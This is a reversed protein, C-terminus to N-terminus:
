FTFGLDFISLQKWEEPPKMNKDVYEKYKKSYAHADRFIIGAKGYLKKDFKRAADMEGEINRGFPCGCCGTRSLGYSYYCESHRIGFHDEYAKRDAMSWLFIPRYEDCGDKKKTFCGPYATSRQGGEDKRVGCINLDAKTDKIAEAIMIRKSKCCSASIRFDPPNEVMFEKLLKNRKINFKSSEGWSDCWWRLAATCGTYWENALYVWPRKNKGTKKRYEELERRKDDTPKKCYKELLVPLPEDEWQFDHKQLRHIYDAARKSVFPQGDAMIADPVSIGARKKQIRIGYKAELEDVHTRTADYELGTDIWLYRCREHIDINYLVDMVVDSDAGGSITVLIDKYGRENIIQDAEIATNRVAENFSCEKIFAKRREERNM